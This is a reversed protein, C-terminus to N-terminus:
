LQKLIEDIAKELQPDKGDLRDKFTTNIYIDPTVGTQELNKGDLTYCGWSPLRCFSGDVMAKGSTFIIWRYTETGIVKGLGLQKFGEATMEADSLSKENILLVIPNAAPAFNPQPALEGGRYKWNLYHKQSLFRLVDDHINGGRNYRLDLILAEKRYAYSTMDILFKQLSQTSMDKMYVYAIRNNSKQNVIRNNTEIWEDYLLNNVFAHNHPKITIDFNKGSRTFSLTMEEPLVPFTFYKERNEKTDIITGNVATLVDGPLVPKETLDLVSKSIVSKVKFPEKEDFFLGSSASRITYFPEEEKGSSTFGTHSANLEGLIDNTLLRLDERQRIHPLYQAYRERMKEWNVGHFNEDYFNESIAAWTEFFIQEFENQLKRSFKHSINIAELKNGTLDLKHINGQALAYFNDKSRVIMYNGTIAPTTIKVPNAKEFPKESIKWLAWEGKDHNSSFLITTEDKRRFVQPSSQQGARIEIMEWRESINELDIKIPQILSDSAPKAKFMDDFKGTRSTEQFRHLPLKYIKANGESRPYNPSYRDSVFYISKGDPAWFPQRETVGTETINITKGTSIHHIMIDQEFNRYATFAIYEDDPSFVPASNQFGWLEDKVLTRIKMTKVDLLNVDTRGSLYVIKNRKSDVNLSRSTQPINELQKETSKGDAQMSFLNAWGKVTRTYILTLNDASWKVEIVRERPEVPMQRVYKGEMDSVFLEGRAVFAIKKNDPSVDFFSIIGKTDFGQEIILNNIQFLRIAPQNTEKKKVDYVFIQYDKEFVIKEGNASVQPRRISTPFNTLNVKEKDLLTYLNYEDNLEDSAFYINGSKDIGPWFDKGEFDTLKNFEKTKPNYSLLDPRHDGRYRKRNAFRLSEWSDTFIYEGTVPHEILHHPMNFYNDFLREPTGGDLPIKYVSSQNYRSSNFYIYKSDWSWSDVFDDAEHYTLQRIEGGQAPMIYVNANRDQNASFAIWKGDPSFRPLFEKGEMATLRMATGGEVPVKWLDNEYSFVILSADPSLTPDTTFYANSQAFSAGTFLTLMLIIVSKKM